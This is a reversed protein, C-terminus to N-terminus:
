RLRTYYLFNTARTVVDRLLGPQRQDLMLSLHGNCVLRSYCLAKAGPARDGPLLGRQRLDPQMTRVLPVPHRTYYPLRALFTLACAPLVSTGPTPGSRLPALPISQLIKLLAHHMM